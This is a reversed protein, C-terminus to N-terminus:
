GAPQTCHPSGGSGNKRRPSTWRDTMWCPLLSKKERHDSTANRFNKFSSKLLLLLLLLLPWAKGLVPWIACTFQQMKEKSVFSLGVAPPSFLKQAGPAKKHLHPGWAPGQATHLPGQRGSALQGRRSSLQPFASARQSPPGHLPEVQEAAGSQKTQVRGRGRTWRPCIAEGQAHKRAQLVPDQCVWLARHVRHISSLLACQAVRFRYGECPLQPTWFVAVHASRLHMNIPASHLCVIHLVSLFHFTRVEPKDTNACAGKDRRRGLGRAGDECRM